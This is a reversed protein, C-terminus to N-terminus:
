AFDASRPCHQAPDKSLFEVAQPLYISVTTGREPASEIDLVGGHGTVIGEVVSLGLGTGQGVEKTTFFPDVARAQTDADMGGGTDSVRLVAFNEPVGGAEATTPVVAAEVLETAVTLTGTRGAMSDAANSCLNMFAVRLQGADGEVPVPSRALRCHVAITAPLTPRVLELSREVFANLEFRRMDSEEARSFTVIQEVLDRARNCASVVELLNEREDSMDPLTRLTAQTLLSIPLLLNNLEHSIGAALNGLAQLKHAQRQQQESRKLDTIDAFVGLVGIVEGDPARLPVKSTLLTAETGDAQQQPEEINLQPEGSAMIEADVKRFFDSEETKWALDYDTKGVIDAPDDLGAREALARNCGLFVSNRDKWFVFHPVTEIITRILDAQQRAAEEARRIDTVDSRVLAIGGDRTRYERVRVVRGDSLRRETGATTNQHAKLREAIWAEEDGVAEVVAGAAVFDRVLDEFRRGIRVDVGAKLFIDRYHENCLALRDDADFLAFGDSISAIADELRRKAKRARREAEVRATVDSGTGRYGLFNGAGDFVPIGSVSLYLARGSSVRYRYEFNKFPRHNELDDLHAHWDVDDNEYRAIEDRTRGLVENTDRGIIAGLRDSLRTFRLDPGMEWYWDSASAAFDRFRVESDRLADTARRRDLRFAVMWYTMALGVFWIPTGIAIWHALVRNDSETLIPTPLLSITKWFYTRPPLDDPSATEVHEAGINSSTSLALPYITDFTVLGDATRFQGSDNSAIVRWADPYRTHFGEEKGLMFGWEVSRDPGLLWYGDRNLIMWQRRGDAIRADLEDLLHRGRYNLIIIGHRQGDRGFVSRAVRIMPKFPREIESREINLDFPSVFITGRPLGIVDRFYYRGGKDQLEGPPVVVAEGGARVNVRVRERGSVDIFRVQDYRARNEALSRFVATLRDLFQASPEGDAVEGEFLDTLLGLDETVGDFGHIMAARGLSLAQREAANTASRETALDQRVFFVLVSCVVVSFIVFSAMFRILLQRDYPDTPLFPVFPNVSKAPRRDAPSAGDASEEARDISTRGQM